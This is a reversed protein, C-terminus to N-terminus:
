LAGGGGGGSACVCVGGAGAAAGAAAAAEQRGDTRSFPNAENGGGVKTAGQQKNQARWAHAGQEWVGEGDRLM